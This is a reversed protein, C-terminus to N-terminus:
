DLISRNTLRQISQGELQLGIAKIFILLWSCGFSCILASTMLDVRYTCTSFVCADTYQMIIDDIVFTVHYYMQIFGESVKVYRMGTSYVHLKILKVNSQFFYINNYVTVLDVLLM